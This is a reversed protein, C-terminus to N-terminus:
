KSYNFARQIYVAMQDRTVVKTPRYTGDSYGLVIKRYALYEIDKFAWFDTAVDPFTATTPAAYSELGADGLPTVVSRAVYVAMQDRTVQLTPKYSGDDYGVVIDHAVAYEVYRYAWYNTPVDPFTAKAPGAGVQADGGALARSVYVAMQDRTVAVAPRYTGDNYGMVVNEHACAVIERVAWFDCDVDKFILLTSSSATLTMDGNMVVQLPNVYTVGELTGGTWGDFRSCTGVLAEVTVKTGKAFSESYPLEHATGNVRVSGSGNVHLTPLATVLQATVTKAGDMLLTAPNATGTLDGAWSGFRYGEAPIVELQVTSKTDASGV